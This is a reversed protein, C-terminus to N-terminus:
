LRPKTDGVKAPKAKETVRAVKIMLIAPSKLDRTKRRWSESTKSNESHVIM